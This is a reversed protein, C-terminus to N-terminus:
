IVGGLLIRDYPHDDPVIGKFTAPSILTNGQKEYAMAAGMSRNTMLTNYKEFKGSILPKPLRYDGNLPDKALMVSTLIESHVFNIDLRENLMDSFAVLGAGPNQYNILYYLKDKDKSRKKGKINKKGFKNDSGDDSGSHYFAQISLMVDYMNVHKYPISLFPQSTDFDSMDIEVHNESNYTWEKKSLYVLMERSFSAKRNYAAVQLTDERVGEPHAVDPVQVHIAKLLSANTVQYTELNEYLTVDTLNQVENKDATVILKKGKLHEKLYLMGEQEGHRLWKQETSGLVFKEISTTSHHKTSLVSSTIKDGANIASFHGINTGHPVSYAMRGYCISCVGQTDPHMCTYVSRLNITKGILETETGRIWDMTGNDRVYYKGTLIKLGRKTVPVPLTYSTGCDGWHLRQMYMCILQTKRSFYETARLLEMNFSTSSTGKRSDVARSQISHNGKIYGNMLPEPFKESSVDTVDGVPGISQLAQGTKLVLSRTSYAVSNGRLENPDFLVDKIQDYCREISAPYPQVEDLAKVIGPHDMVELVDFMSMTSMYPTLRIVAVNFIDNTARFAEKALEESDITEGSQEHIDWICANMKKLIVKGTITADGIHFEKLLRSKFRLVPRWFYVSLITARTHTELEGDDFVVIHREEPLSWLEEESLKLLDHANYRNM